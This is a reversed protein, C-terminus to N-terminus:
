SAQISVRRLSIAFNLDLNLRMLSCIHSVDWLQTKDGRLWALLCIRAVRLTCKQNGSESPERLHGKVDTITHNHFWVLSKWPNITGDCMCCHCLLCLWQFCNHLIYSAWCPGPWFYNIEYTETGWFKDKMQDSIYILHLNLSFCLSVFFM